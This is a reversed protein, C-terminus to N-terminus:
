NGETAVGSIGDRNACTKCLRVRNAAIAEEVTGYTLTESQNLHSCDDHTHYVKGFTTWYVTESGLVDMAAEKMESSVPNFDYSAVGGILLCIVAAVTAITKTKKDAEKNTLVLIIFPFFCIAMAIVGMNNWLWFKFQNAESVPDIHNAKKWLQAGVIVAILDLVLFIILQPIQPIFRLDVKGLFVMLALVEFVLALVWLAVAGIRLPKANGVPEAEKVARVVDENPVQKTQRAKKSDESAAVYKKEKKEAM